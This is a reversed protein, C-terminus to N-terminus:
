LICISALGMGNRKMRYTMSSVSIFHNKKYYYKKNKQLLKCLAVSGSIFILYTGAIVMIVAVFFLIFADIPNDISLAMYYAGCLILIGIISVIWNAKIPKEGFSQSNMLELPDSRAISILSKITLLAFIAAFILVTYIIAEFPISFIYGIDSKTIKLFVLEFLKSFAIGLIVGSLIGVSAIFSSEWLIISSINKKNMGLVNYLGFEKYRRKLLFSNTYFLFFLSFIAIVYKGLSLVLFIDRGHPLANILPSCSLFHMIYYMAIMGICSLIYPLYFKRNNKIGMFALHPYLSRKM